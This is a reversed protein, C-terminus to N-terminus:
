LSSNSVPEEARATRQWCYVKIYPPMINVPEEAPSTSNPSVTVSKITDSSYGGQHNIATYGYTGNAFGNSVSTNRVMIDGTNFSAAHTHSAVPVQDSSLTIKSNGGINGASNNTILPFRGDGCDLREWTGGLFNELSESSMTWYLSGVPFIANGISAIYSNLTDNNLPIPDNLPSYFGNQNNQEDYKLKDYVLTQESFLEENLNQGPVSLNLSNLYKINNDEITIQQPETIDEGKYNALDFILNKKIDNYSIQNNVNNAFIPFSTNEELNTIEIFASLKSVDENAM